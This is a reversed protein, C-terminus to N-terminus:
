TCSKQVFLHTLTVSERHTMRNMVVWIRMNDSLTEGSSMDYQSAGREFTELKTLVDGKKKIKESKLRLRRPETEVHTQRERVKLPAM